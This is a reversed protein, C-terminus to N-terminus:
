RPRTRVSERVQSSRGRWWSSARVTSTSDSMNSGTWARWDARVAPENRLLRARARARARARFHPSEEPRYGADALGQKAKLDGERLEAASTSRVRASRPPTAKTETSAAAQDRRSSALRVWFLRLDADAQNVLETFFARGAATCNLASGLHGKWGRFEVELFREALSTRECENGYHRVTVAGLQKLKKFSTASKKRTSKSVAAMQDAVTARRRIVPRLYEAHLSHRLSWRQCGAVLAEATASHAPLGQISLVPIQTRRCHWHLLADVALAAADRHILPYSLFSHEYVATANRRCPFRPGASLAQLPLVLLLRDGEEAADPAARAYIFLLSFPRDRALHRAVPLM